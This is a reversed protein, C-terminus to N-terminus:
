SDATMLDAAKLAALCANLQDQLEDLAANVEVIAGNIDGTTNGDVDAVAVVAADAVNAAVRGELDELLDVIEDKASPDALSVGLRLKLNNSLAM